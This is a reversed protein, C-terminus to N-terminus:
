SCIIHQGLQMVSNYLEVTKAYQSPGVEVYAHEEPLSSGASDINEKAAGVHSAAGSVTKALVDALSDDPILTPLLVEPESISSWLFRVADGFYEMLRHKLHFSQYDTEVRDQDVVSTFIEQLVTM